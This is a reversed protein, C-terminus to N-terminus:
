EEVFVTIFALVGLAALLAKWAIPTGPWIVAGACLAATLSILFNELTKKIM